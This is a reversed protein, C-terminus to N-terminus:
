RWGFSAICRADEPVGLRLAAVAVLLMTIICIATHVTVNRLGRLRHRNLCILDELRSNVREISSRARGYVRVEGEPGHARFLKDVRLVDEGRRQNRPYPIIAEVGCSTAKGRFRRSSYQPDAVLRRVRGKTAEVTKDILDPAHKKENDNAPAVTFAVPLDSEADAAIHARYGLDYSRDDRGVRADPDSFGRRDDHPDRRSYAEIFTADMAVTEGKVVGGEVLEGVLDKVIEELREPGVRRRFRTLQSPHYPREHDEIDCIERLMPDDWLRRYLERDSPIQRLRKVVLAKFIGVPNRPPRGVGKRHYPEWIVAEIDHLDLASLILAIDGLREV